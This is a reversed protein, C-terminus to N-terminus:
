PWFCFTLSEPLGVNPDSPRIAESKVGDRLIVAGTLHAYHVGYLRGIFLPAKATGTATSRKCTQAHILFKRYREGEVNLVVASLGRAFCLPNPQHPPTAEVANILELIEFSSVPGQASVTINFILLHSRTLISTQDNRGMAGRARSISCQM